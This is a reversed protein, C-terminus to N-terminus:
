AGVNSEKSSANYITDSLTKTKGALQAFEVAVKNIGENMDRFKIGAFDIVGNIDKTQKQNLWMKESLTSMINLMGSFGIKVYDILQIMLRLNMGTANITNEMMQIQVALQKFSLSIKESATVQKEAAIVQKNTAAVQKNTAAAQNIASEAQSRASHVQMAAATDGVGVGGGGGQQGGQGIQSADFEAKIRITHTQEAM